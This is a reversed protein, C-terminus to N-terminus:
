GNDGMTSCLLKSSPGDKAYKLIAGDALYLIFGLLYNVSRGFFGLSNGLYCIRTIAFWTIPLVKKMFKNRISAMDIPNNMVYFIPVIIVPEMGVKSLAEKYRDMTRHYEHFGPPRNEKLFSDMILIQTDQHSLNAINSLAQEFKDEDVIHFLVDFATIIDYKRSLLPLQKSSIDAKIFECEPYKAKLSSTSKETIDIGTASKVDRRKWYDIYFGTGVGIDLVHKGHPDIKGIELARKLARLRGKYLWKNYELGLGSYGVGGLSFDKSLREEWYGEPQYRKM